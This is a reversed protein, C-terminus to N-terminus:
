FESCALYGPGREAAWEGFTKTISEGSRDGDPYYTFPKSDDCATWAEDPDPIYGDVYGSAAASSEAIVYDCDNTWVKLSTESMEM